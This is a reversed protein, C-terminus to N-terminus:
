YGNAYRAVGCGVAGPLWPSLCGNAILLQRQVALMEPQPGETM